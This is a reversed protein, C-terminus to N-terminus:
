ISLLYLLHENRSGKSLTFRFEYYQVKLFLYVTQEITSILMKKTDRLCKKITNYPELSAPIEMTSRGPEERFYRPYYQKVQKQEM